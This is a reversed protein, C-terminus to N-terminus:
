WCGAQAAAVAAARDRARSASWRATEALTALRAIDEAWRESRQHFETAARAKWDTQASLSRATAAADHLRDSIRALERAAHALRLEADSQCPLTSHMRGAHPFGAHLILRVPPTPLTM